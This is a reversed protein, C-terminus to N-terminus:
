PQYKWLDNLDGMAGNSDFGAGGFLWLNGSSDTWSLADDRSGPINGAAAVGPTGYVGAAGGNTWDLQKTGSVWTWEKSAPDFQWLDNLYGKTGTSDFGLGGLLWLNGSRDTWSVASERAGPVNTTSAVGLTGYVGPESLVSNAGSEWTWKNTTLDFKWLDNLYGLAGLSDYGNGGFLWLNGSSDTWSVASNRGGPTNGAAAVGLTGYVGSLVGSSGVSNAGSMWTWEITTPDFKWLDNLGSGGFLWFNGSSDTWSVAFDRAGPTNGAAAVGLTGYVGAAGGYLSGVQNEGSMWTWEKSAPDFKWLDNATLDGGFLWLNGSSDSWSVSGYRGGPTNGAAAVGLTGYVGEGTGVFNTGSVWMWESTAPNFEWLDNLPGQTGTSDYAFGGFLWLNGSRDTWSAASERAGPMNSTSAVGLTGYVGPQFISITNSGSEWAWQNPTSATSSAPNSGSTSGGCGTLSILIPLVLISVITGHLRM